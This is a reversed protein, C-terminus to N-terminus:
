LSSFNQRAATLPSRQVCSKRWSSKVRYTKHKIMQFETRWTKTKISKSHTRWVAKINAIAWGTKICRKIWSSFCILKRNIDPKILPHTNRKGSFISMIWSLSFLLPTAISIKSNPRKNKTCFSVFTLTTTVQLHMLIFGARFALEDTDKWKKFLM